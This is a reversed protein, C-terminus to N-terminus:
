KDGYTDLKAMDLQMEQNAVNARWTEFRCENSCFRKAITKADIIREGCRECPSYRCSCPKATGDSLDQRSRVCAAHCHVCRCSWMSDHTKGVFADIVFGDFCLGPKIRGSGPRCIGGDLCAQSCFKQNKRRRSPRFLSGCKKCAREPLDPLKFRVRFSENCCSKSCFKRKKPPRMPVGCIPCGSKDTM